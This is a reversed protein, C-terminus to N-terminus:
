NISIKSKNNEFYNRVERFVLISTSLAGVFAVLYEFISYNKLFGREERVEILYEIESMSKSLKKLQVDIFNIKRDVVSKGQAGAIGEKLKEIKESLIEIEKELERETKVISTEPLEGIMAKTFNIIAHTKFLLDRVDINPHKIDNIPRMFPLIKKMNSKTTSYDPTEERHYLQAYTLEFAKGSSTHKYDAFISIYGGSKSSKMYEQSYHRFNDYLVTDGDYLEIKFNKDTCIVKFRIKEVNLFRQPSLSDILAVHKDLGKYDKGDNNAYILEISKGTFELGVSFGHFQSPGGKFPGVTPKEHTYFFFISAIERSELNLENFDFEFSWNDNPNPIEWRVMSSEDITSRMLLKEPKVLVNQIGIHDNYVQSIFNLDKVATEIVGDKSSIAKILELALLILIM